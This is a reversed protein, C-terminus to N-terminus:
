LSGKPDARATGAVAAAHRLRRSSSLPPSSMFSSSRRSASPASPWPPSSASSSPASSADSCLFRPSNTLFLFHPFNSNGLFHPFSEEINDNMTMKRPLSKNRAQQNRAAAESAPTVIQIDSAPPQQSPQPPRRRAAAGRGRDASRAGLAMERRWRCRWLFGCTQHYSILNGGKVRCFAGLSSLWIM